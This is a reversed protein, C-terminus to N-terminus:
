DQTTRYSFGVTSFYKFLSQGWQACHQYMTSANWQKFDGGRIKVRHYLFLLIERVATKIIISIHKKCRFKQQQGTECDLWRNNEIKFLWARRFLKFFHNPCGYVTPMIQGEGQNSYPKPLQWFITPAFGLRGRINWQAQIKCKSHLESQM